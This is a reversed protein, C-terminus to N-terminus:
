KEAGINGTGDKAVAGVMKKRDITGSIHIRIQETVNELATMLDSTGAARYVLKFAEKKIDSTIGEGVASSLHAVVKEALMADVIFQGLAIMRSLFFVTRYVERSAEKDNSNPQVKEFFKLVDEFTPTTSLGQFVQTCDVEGVAGGEKTFADQIQEGLVNWIEATFTFGPFSLKELTGVTIGSSGAAATTFTSNLNEIALTGTETRLESLYECYRKSTDAFLGVLTAISEQYKAEPKQIPAIVRLKGVLRAPGTGSAGSVSELKYEIDGFETTFSSAVELFADSSGNSEDNFFMESLKITMEDSSTGHAPMTKFTLGPSSIAAVQGNQPSGTIRDGQCTQQADIYSLGEAQKKQLCWFYGRVYTDAGPIYNAALTTRIDSLLQNTQHNMAIQQAKALGEALGPETLEFTILRTPLKGDINDRLYNAVNQNQLIDAQSSLLAPVMASIPVQRVGPEANLCVGLAPCEEPNEDEALPVAMGVAPLPHQMNEITSVGGHDGYPDTGKFDQDVLAKRYEEFASGQVVTGQAHASTTALLIFIIPLYKSM